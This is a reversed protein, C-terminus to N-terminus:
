KNLANLKKFEQGIESPDMRENQEVCGKRNTSYASCAVDESVYLEEEHGNEYCYCLKTGCSVVSLAAFAMLAIFVKKKM